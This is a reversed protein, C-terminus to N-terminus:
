RRNRPHFAQVQKRLEDNDLHTYIETTAIDEHGLFKQIVILNAGGKLLATAFSHRLTHPSVEKTIGALAAADRVLVFVTIRSIAKGRNSVFIFGEQGRKAVPKQPHSLYKEIEEIATPSIPVLRQKNGKGWVRIFGDEFFCDAHKLHCLESVRLGCSFLLEIIARNRVGEIGGKSEAASLMADVEEVSLYSPLHKELRPVELLETPNNAEEIYGEKVLWRFFNRIGSIIRVKSRESLGRDYLTSLFEQLRPYDLDPYDLGKSALWDSLKRVDEMYAQCTNSSMGRGITLYRLYDEIDVVSATHHENTKMYCLYAITYM